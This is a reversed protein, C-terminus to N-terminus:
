SAAPWDSKLLLLVERCKDYYALQADLFSALDMVAEEDSEKIDEM